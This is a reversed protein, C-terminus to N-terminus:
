KSSTQVPLSALIPPCPAGNISSKAGFRPVRVRRSVDSGGAKAKKRLGGHVVVKMGHSPPWRSFGLPFRGSLLKSQISVQHSPLHRWRVARPASFYLAASSQWSQWSWLDPFHLGPFRLSFHLSIQLVSTNKLFVNPFLVFHYIHIRCRTVLAGSRIRLLQIARDKLTTMRDPIPLVQGSKRSYVFCIHAISVWHLWSNVLVAKFESLIGHSTDIFIIIM